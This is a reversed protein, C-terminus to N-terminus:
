EARIADLPDIAAARRAPLWAALSSVACLVGVAAALTPGDLPSVGFLVTKIVREAALTLALGLLTGAALMKGAGAFVMRIIETSSAGLAIRVGIERTRATVVISILSYLGVSALLMAM